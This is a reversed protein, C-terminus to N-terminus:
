LLCIALECAQMWQEAYEENADREIGCMIMASAFGLDVKM